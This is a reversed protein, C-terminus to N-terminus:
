KGGHRKLRGSEILDLVTVDEWGEMRVATNDDIAGRDLKEQLIRMWASGQEEPIQKGVLDFAFFNGNPFFFIEKIPM